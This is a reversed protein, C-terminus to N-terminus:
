KREYGMGKTAQELFGSDHLAKLRELTEVLDKLRSANEVFEATLAFRKVEQLFNIVERMERIQAMKWLRTEELTKKTTAIFDPWEGELLEKVSKVAKRTDTLDQLIEAIGRLQDAAHDATARSDKIEQAVPDSM